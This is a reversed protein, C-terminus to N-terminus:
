LIEEEQSFEKGEFAHSLAQSLKETDLIRELDATHVVKMFALFVQIDFNKAEEIMMQMATRSDFASRYPRDSTLAAFVDCVRIIRAGMPIEERSLNMPYGSGDYNEHHSKVMDVIKQSYGKKELIAAGLASHRRVYKLEEIILTEKEKGRVYKALELKGIDHLFGAVAFEHCEEESFCMQKGVLYALNSVAAGHALENVVSPRIIRYKKRYEHCTESM